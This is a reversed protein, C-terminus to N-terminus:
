CGRAPPSIDRDQQLDDADTLSIPIWDIVDLGLPADGPQNQFAKALCDNQGQGAERVPVSAFGM